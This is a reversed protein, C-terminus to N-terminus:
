QNVAEKHALVKQTIYLLSPQHVPKILYDLAGYRRAENMTKTEPDGTIIVVSCNPQLVKIGQIADIGSDSGIRIDLFLLDFTEAQMKKICASLSNATVAQYGAENLFASFTFRICEEDDAILIKQKM